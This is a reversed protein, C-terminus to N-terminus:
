NQTFSSASSTSYNLVNYRIKLSTPTLSSNPNVKFAVANTGSVASYTVTLTSTVLTSDFIENFPLFSTNYVDGKQTCYFQALATYVQTDTGDGIHISIAVLGSVMQTTTIACNFLSNDANDTGNFESTIMFAPIPSSDTTGTTSRTGRDLQVLTKGTGTSIGDRIYVGGANKNTSGLFAGSGLLTFAVGDVSAHRELGITKASASGLSLDYSPATAGAIGILGANTIRMAETLTVTGIPTVNFILRSGQATTTFAEETFSQISTSVYNANTGNAGLFSINGLENNITVTTFTGLGGRTKLLYIGAGVTDASGRTLSMSALVTTTGATELQLLRTTGGISRAGSGTCLVLSGDNNLQM